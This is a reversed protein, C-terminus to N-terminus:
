YKNDIKVLSKLAKALQLSFTELNYKEEALKRARKGMEKTEEPHKLMYSIADQWGKVDGPEVWLGIGEKEIDINTQRHKTMVVAKGMAMADLLSTLGYLPTTDIRHPPIYLPIAIAYAKAYEILLEQWSLAKWALALTQQNSYQIKVNPPVPVIPASKSSCYIHMQCDIENFAQVITNYDRSENGACVILPYEYVDNTNFKYDDYSPLYPGWDLLALKNKDIKFDDILRNETSESLCLIKDHGAAFLKLLINNLANKKFPRELKVVLPKRLIGLIRLFALLLTSTQCTSYILDYKHAILMVRIQQELDGLKLKEGIKKIFPYKEYPLLDVDIGYQHLHTVGWLHHEPSEREQKNKWREWSRDASAYDFLCLIKM